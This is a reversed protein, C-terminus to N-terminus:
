ADPEGTIRIGPLWSRFSGWCRQHALQAQTFSPPAPVEPQDPDFSCGYKQQHLVAYVKFIRSHQKEAHMDPLDRLAAALEAEARGRGTLRRYLVEDARRMFFVYEEESLRAEELLAEDMKGVAEDYDIWRGNCNVARRVRNPTPPDPAEMTQSIVSFGRRASRFGRKLCRLFIACFAGEVWRCVRRKSGRTSVRDLNNSGSVIDPRGNRTAPEIQVISRVYGLSPLM